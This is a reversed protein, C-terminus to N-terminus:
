VYNQNKTHQSGYQKGFKIQLHVLTSQPLIIFLIQKDDLHNYVIKIINNCRYDESFLKDNEYIYRIETSKNDPNNIWLFKNYDTIVGLKSGLQQMYTLCQEAAVEEKKPSNLEMSTKREVVLVVRKHDLIIEDPMTRQSADGDWLRPSFVIETVFDEIIGAKKLQKLTTSGLIFHQFNDISEGEYYTNQDATKNLYRQLEESM